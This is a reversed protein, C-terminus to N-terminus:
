GWIYENLLEALKGSDDLISSNGPETGGAAAKELAEAVKRSDTMQAMSLCNTNGVRRNFQEVKGDYVLSVLPVGALYTFIGTHMQTAVVFDFKSFLYILEEPLLHNEGILMIGASKNCLRAVKAAFKQDTYNTYSLVAYDNQEAFEGVQKLFQKLVNEGGALQEGIFTYRHLSLLIKKGGPLSEAIREAEPTKRTKLLFTPDAGAVIERSTCESFIGRSLEDRVSIIESNNLIVKTMWRSLRSDLGSCGVAYIMVKKGFLKLWLTIIFLNLLHSFSIDFLRRGFFLGGGGIIIKDCEILVQLTKPGIYATFSRLIRIDIKKGRQTRGIIDSLYGRLQAVDKSFIYIILEDVAGNQLQILQSRLIALDGKNRGSFSGLICIRRM